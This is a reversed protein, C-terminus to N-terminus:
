SPSDPVPLGIPILRLAGLGMGMDSVTEVGTATPWIDPNSTVLLIRRYGHASVLSLLELYAEETQVLFIMREQFVRYLEQGLWWEDTVVIRESRAELRRNMEHTFTRKRDLIAVSLVQAGLSVLIVLLVPVILWARGARRRWAVINLAALSALLPYVVLLLRNGWHRGWAGMEPAVLAYLLAYALALKWIFGTMVQRYAAAGQGCVRGPGSEAPANGGDRYRVLALILIPATPFLSNTYGVWDLSLGSRIFRTYIYFSVGLAIGGYVFPVRRFWKEPLRPNLLFAAVFPLTVVVSTGVRDCAASFIYFFVRPRALVHGAIGTTSLVHTAVHFGFPRGIASWQFIWLPVLVALFTAGFVVATKIKRGSCSHATLALLVLAFL